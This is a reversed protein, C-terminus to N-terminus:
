ESSYRARRNTAIPMSRASREATPVAGALHDDEALRRAPSAPRRVDVALCRLVRAVSRLSRREPSEGVSAGGSAGGQAARRVPGGPGATAGPGATDRCAAAAVTASTRLASAAEGERHDHPVQEVGGEDVAIAGEQVADREAQHRQEAHLRHEVVDLGVQQARGALLRHGPEPPLQEGPQELHRGAEEGLPAGALEGAPEGGVDPQQLADQAVLDGLEGALDQGQDAAHHQEGPQLGPEREGGQPTAGSTTPVASTNPRRSRRM